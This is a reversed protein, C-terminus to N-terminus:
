RGGLVVGDKHVAHNKDRPRGGIEAGGVRVRCGVPKPQDLLYRRGGEFLLPQVPSEKPRALNNIPRRLVSINQGLHIIM